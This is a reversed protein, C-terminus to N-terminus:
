NIFYYSIAVLLVIRFLWSSLRYIRRRRRSIKNYLYQNNEITGNVGKSFTIAVKNSNSKKNFYNFHLYVDSTQEEYITIKCDLSYDERSYRPTLFGFIGIIWFFLSYLWWSSHCLEPEFIARIVVKGDLFTPVEIFEKSNEKNIKLKKDGCFLVIDRRNVLFIKM